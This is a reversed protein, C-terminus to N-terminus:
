RHCLRLTSGAGVAARIETAVGRRRLESAVAEAAEASLLILVRAHDHETQAGAPRLVAYSVENPMGVGGRHIRVFSFRDRTARWGYGDFREPGHEARAGGPWAGSLGDAGHPLVPHEM